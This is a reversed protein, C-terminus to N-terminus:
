AAVMPESIFKGEDDLLFTIEGSLIVERLEDAGVGRVEVFRLVDGIANLLMAGRVKKNLKSLALEPRMAVIRCTQSALDVDSQFVPREKLHLNLYALDVMIERLQVESVPGNIKRARDHFYAMAGSSDDFVAVFATDGLRILMTQALYLDGFDFEGRMMEARVPLGIFSGMVEREISCGTHFSRVVCHLHHLLTWDYQDAIMQDGRRRDLEVRHARDKLHTKLYILSMWVFLKLLHGSAIFEFIAEQGSQVAECIPREISEGMASNCEACCPVTYRDYRVTNGNPLTVRKDFLGYRRLVWEPVVHENNFNKQAPDAGCIFCCSGLCIDKVFREVSFYIVKGAGDVISGDNTYLWM